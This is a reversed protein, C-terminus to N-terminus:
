APSERILTSLRALGPGQAFFHDTDPILEVRANDHPGFFEALSEPRVIEDDVGALVHIPGRFGAVDLQKIMDIPPAVLLLRSVREDRLACRLATAAGFSYGAAVVPAGLTAVVHDLAARYDREAAGSSGTAVGQSAGVGRWNFRLSGYGLRYLGYAIENVVPNEFSGGYLPHPPAVVAGRDGKQWVGELVLGEGEVPVTVM